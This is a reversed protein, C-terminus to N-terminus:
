TIEDRLSTLLRLAAAELRSADVPKQVYDDYGAVIASHNHGSYASVAIAPIRRVRPDPLSRIAAILAYGDQGPMGLDALLLDFSGSSLLRIAESASAATAVAVGTGELMHQLLDRADADDDVVLLRAREMVSRVMSPGAADEGVTEMGRSSLPLTVTFTAGMGEGPSAASVAGGHAEVLYKAITLGLGLGGHQRTTSTDAQRFREFLHTMFERPIGQGTDSVVIRAHAGARELRVGVGGREPTFKIANTLLNWAVQHLRGADGKVFRASRDVELDLTISKANAAPRVSDVAGALVTALNVQDLTLQLKGTIIRSVDLLDDILHVQLTANRQIVDLARRITSEDTQPDRVIHAWGLIANLPTRLEHSLVALFEEKLRNATEAEARATREAALLRERDTEARRREVLTDRLVQELKERREIEGELARARVQLRSIERARATVGATKTYSEAPIVHTHVRCVDQFRGAHGEKNVDGLAYSCLLTFPYARVLENWLDELQLAADGNQDQWLLDVMEGYTRATTNPNSFLRDLMPRFHTRFRGADLERGNMFTSLTERADLFLLRDADRLRVLDFGKQRLRAEFAERHVPTAVAITTQGAELGDALFGAVVSALYDDTEYFQVVHDRLSFTSDLLADGNLADM